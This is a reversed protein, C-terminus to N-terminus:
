TRKEQSEQSGELTERKQCTLNYTLNPTRFSSRKCISISSQERKARSQKKQITTHMLWNALGVSLATQVGFKPSGALLM